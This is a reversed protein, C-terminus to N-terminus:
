KTKELVATFRPKGHRELHYTLRAGDESFSITWVNTAAEPILQSTFEDAPFSQMLQNGSESSDGGYNTVEDPTGDAHRHDHKLRVGKATRSFVWTRPTDQGVRFPVRVEDESCDSFDAVLEKGMFSDQGETPYTMAGIYQSGCAAILNEFYVHAPSEASAAASVTLSVLITALKLQQIKNM